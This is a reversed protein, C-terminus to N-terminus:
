FSALFDVVGWTKPGVVGDQTLSFVRQVDKVRSETRSGFDGDVTINGGAKVKIVQQLYKVLDGRNGRKILGKKRAPWDGFQSPKPAPPHPKEDVVPQDPLVGQLPMGGHVWNYRENGPCETSHWDRHGKCTDPAGTSQAIYSICEKFAQQEWQGFPNEQGGLCCITHSTHNAFTVGNAANVVNLGRGEFVYGHPCVLFNYAIDNWGRGDMHFNQIGRVLGACKSHDWTLEGGGTITPGNWHCTSEDTLVGQSRNKPSRAGWEARSVLNM